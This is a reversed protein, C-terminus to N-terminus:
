GNNGESKATIGGEHFCVGGGVIPSRQPHHEPPDDVTPPLCAGVQVGVMFSLGLWGVFFSAILIATM